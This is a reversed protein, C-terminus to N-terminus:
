KIEWRKMKEPSPKNGSRPDYHKKQYKFNTICIRKGCTDQPNKIDNIIFEEGCIPCTKKHTIM